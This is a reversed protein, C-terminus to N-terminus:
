SLAPLPASRACVVRNRGQLKAQYLADDALKLLQQQPQSSVYVESACGISISLKLSEKGVVYPRESIARRLVEAVHQAGQENTDPLLIVFEEGGFRCLADAPRRLRYYLRRAVEQLVADGAPHGYNDNIQKFYDIDVMLLGLPTQNRASCQLESRYQDNFHQRNRLGTLPDVLSKEHLIRNKDTLSRIQTKLRNLTPLHSEPQPDQPRRLALTRSLKLLPRSLQAYQWLLLLTLAIAVPTASRLPLEIACLLLPLPLLREMASLAPLTVQWCLLPCLTLLPLWSLLNSDLLWLADIVVTSVLLAAVTTGLPWRWQPPPPFSIASLLILLPAAVLPPTLFFLLVWVSLAAQQLLRRTQGASLMLQISFLAAAAGALLASLRANAPGTWLRASGMPQWQLQVLAPKDFTFQQVPQTLTSVGLTSLLVEPGQQLQLSQPTVSFLNLPHHADLLLTRPRENLPALGLPTALELAFYFVGLCLLIGM